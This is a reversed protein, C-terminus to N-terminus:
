FEKIEKNVGINWHKKYSLDNPASGETAILM